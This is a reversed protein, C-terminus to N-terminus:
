IGAHYRHGQFCFHLLSCRQWKEKSRAQKSQLSPCRSSVRPCPTESLSNTKSPATVGGPLPPPLGPLLQATSRSGLLWRRQRSQLPPPKPVMRLHHRRLCAACNCEEMGERVTPVQDWKKGIQLRNHEETSVPCIKCSACHSHTVYGQCSGRSKSRMMRPLQELRVPM